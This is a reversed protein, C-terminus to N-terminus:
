WDDGYPKAKVSEKWNKATSNAKKPTGGKGGADVITNGGRSVAPSKGSTYSEQWAPGKRSSTSKGM